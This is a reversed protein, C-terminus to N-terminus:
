NGENSLRIDSDDHVGLDDAIHPYTSFYTVEYSLKGTYAIVNTVEGTITYDTGGLTTDFTIVDGFSFRPEANDM